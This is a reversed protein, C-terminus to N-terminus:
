LLCALAQSQIDSAVKRSLNLHEWSKNMCPQAGHKQVLFSGRLFFFHHCFIFLELDVDKSNPVSNELRDITSIDRKNKRKKGTISFYISTHLTQM